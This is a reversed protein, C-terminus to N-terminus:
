RVRYCLLFFCHFFDYNHQKHNGHCHAHTKSCCFLCFFSIYFVLVFWKYEEITLWRIRCCSCNICSGYVPISFSVIYTKICSTTTSNLTFKNSIVKCACIRCFDVAITISCDSINKTNTVNSM